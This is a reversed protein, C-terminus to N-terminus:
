KRIRETSWVSNTAFDEPAIPDTRQGRASGTLRRDREMMIRDWRDLNYRIPKWDERGSRIVNLLNGTAAFMVTVLGFPLIAEWPVPM